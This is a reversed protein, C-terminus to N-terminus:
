SSCYEQAFAHETTTAKKRFQFSLMLPFPSTQILKVINPADMDVVNVGAVKVIQSGIPIKPNNSGKVFLNKQSIASEVDIGLPLGPFPVDLTRVSGRKRGPSRMTLDLTSMSRDSRMSTSSQISKLSLKQSSMNMHDINESDAM